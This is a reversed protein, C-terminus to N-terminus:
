ESTRKELFYCPVILVSCSWRGQHLVSFLYFTIIYKGISISVYIEDDSKHVVGLGWHLMNSVGHEKIEKM